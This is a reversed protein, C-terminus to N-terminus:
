LPGKPPDEKRCGLTYVWKGLRLGAGRDHRPEGTREDEWAQRGEKSLRWHAEHLCWRLTHGPSALATLLPEDLGPPLARNLAPQNFPWDCLGTAARVGGM